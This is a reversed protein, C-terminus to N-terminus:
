SPSHEMSNATYYSKMRRPWGNYKMLENIHLLLVDSFDCCRQMQQQGLLRISKVLWCTAVAKTRMQPRVEVQCKAPSIIFFNVKVRLTQCHILYVM